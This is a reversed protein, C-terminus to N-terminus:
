TFGSILPLMTVTNHKGVFTFFVLLLIPSILVMMFKLMLNILNVLYRKISLVSYTLLLSGGYVIYIYALVIIDDVVDAGTSM